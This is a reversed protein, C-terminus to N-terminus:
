IKDLNARHIGTDTKWNRAKFSKSIFNGTFNTFSSGGNTAYSIPATQAGSSKYTIRVGYVKKIRAPNGFDIDKTKMIWKTPDIQDGNSTESIGYQGTASGSVANITNFSIGGDGDALFASFALLASPSSRSVM